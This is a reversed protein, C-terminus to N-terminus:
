DLRQARWDQEIFVGGHTEPPMRGTGYFDGAEVTISVAEQIWDEVLENQRVILNVTYSGPALPLKKVRCAFYGQEPVGDFTEGTLQNSLMSVFGGTASSIGIAATINAPRPNNSCQYYIRFDAEKGASLYEQENGATDFVAFNVIRIRGEGQRDARKSLETKTIETVRTLYSDVAARVDGIPFDIAGQNLVM